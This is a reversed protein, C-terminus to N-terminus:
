WGLGSGGRAGFIDRGADREDEWVVLFNTGDFAVSAGRQAGHASGSFCDTSLWFDPWCSFAEGSLFFIAIVLLVAIRILGAFRMMECKM